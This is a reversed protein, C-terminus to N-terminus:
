GTVAKLKVAIGAPWGTFPSVYNNPSGDVEYTIGNVTVADIPGVTTGAPLYLMPTTTLMDQGQVLEVSGGPDFICHDVVTSVTMYVDNGLADTGSKTRTLLTATVGAAVIV